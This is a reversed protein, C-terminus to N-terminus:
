PTVKIPRNRVISRSLALSDLYSRNGPVELILRDLVRLAVNRGLEEHLVRALANATQTSITM